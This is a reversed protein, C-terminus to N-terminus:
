GAQPPQADTACCDPSAGCSCPATPATAPPAGCRRRTSVRASCCSAARRWTPQARCRRRIRSPVARGLCTRRGRVGPAPRRRQLRASARRGAARAGGRRAHVAGAGAGAAGRLASRRARAASLTVEITGIERGRPNRGVRGGLGHALLQHGYCIGLVPTGALVAGALWAATRESWPERHSVMASSGTVVVGAVADPAPLPANQYVHAIRIRAPDLGMGASIWDEYDGRRRALEPLTRGSKVILLPRM